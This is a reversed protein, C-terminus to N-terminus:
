APYHPMMLHNNEHGTGRMLLEVRLPAIAGYPPSSESDIAIFNSMAQKRGNGTKKDLVINIIKQVSM